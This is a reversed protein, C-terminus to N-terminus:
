LILPVKQRLKSSFNRSICELTPNSGFVIKFNFHIYYLVRDIEKIPKSTNLKSILIEFKM